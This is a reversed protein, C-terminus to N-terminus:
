DEEAELMRTLREAIDHRFRDADIEKAEQNVQGDNSEADTAGEMECIKEYLKALTTLTRADRECDAASIGEGDVHSAREIRTEIERMKRDLAAYLRAIIGDRRSTGDAGSAVEDEDSM